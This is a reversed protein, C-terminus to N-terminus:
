LTRTLIAKKTYTYQQFSYVRENTWITKQITKLGALTMAFYVFNVGNEERFALMIVVGEKGHPSHKYQFM